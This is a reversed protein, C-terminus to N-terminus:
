YIYAHIYPVELGNCKFLNICFKPSPLFMPLFFFSAVLVMGIIKAGHAKLYGTKNELFRCVIDVGVILPIFIM